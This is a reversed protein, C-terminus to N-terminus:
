SNSTKDECTHPRYRSSMLPDLNLSSCKVYCIQGICVSSKRSYGVEADLGIGLVGRLERGCAGFPITQCVFSNTMLSSQNRPPQDLQIFRHM